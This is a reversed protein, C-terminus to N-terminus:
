SRLSAAGPRGFIKSGVMRQRRLPGMDAWKARSRGCFTELSFVGRCRSSHFFNNKTEKRTIASENFVFSPAIRLHFHEEASWRACSVINLPTDILICTPALLFSFCLRALFSFAFLTRNRPTGILRPAGRTYFALLLPAYEVYTYPLSLSHLLRM